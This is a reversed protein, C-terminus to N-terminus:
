FKGKDRVLVVFEGKLNNSDSNLIALIEEASGQYCSEHLKTIERFVILKKSKNTEKSKDVIEKLLKTIRHKSEYFIFPSNSIVIKKILSQRGKKHPLFGLFCFRDFGVGALSIAALLASPGPISVIKVDEELEKRIVSILQSGPDSVGPTGADSILALEKGEKLKNIIKEIKLFGSHQHYSLLPTSIRYHSLLKKAVRTDECLILNVQKLIRLARLSIDELNGIPTAVINLIGMFNNWIIVGKEFMNLGIKQWM